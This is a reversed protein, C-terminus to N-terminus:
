TTTYGESVAALARVRRALIEVVAPHDGLLPTRVVRLEPHERIAEAVIEDVDGGEGAHRGPLLFFMALIAGRAIVEPRRLAVELLPDNFAYANGDRREMAATILDIPQGGPSAAAILHDRVLQGVRERVDNVPRHPTGHDLLIAVPSPLNAESATTNVLDAIAGALMANGAPDGGDLDYIPPAVAMTADEVAAATKAEAIAMPFFESIARSPGLFFPTLEFRRVGARMREAFAASLTEGAIGDLEAAAIRDSHQASVAEIDLGTAESVDAAVQRLMRHSDARLSGNDVLFRAVEEM